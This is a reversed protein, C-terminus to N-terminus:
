KVRGGWRIQAVSRRVARDCRGIMLRPPLWHLTEKESTKRGRREAQREGQRGGGLDRTQLDRAFGGVTGEPGALVDQPLALQMAFQRGGLCDGVDVLCLAVGVALDLVGGID